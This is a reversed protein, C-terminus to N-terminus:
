DRKFVVRMAWLAMILLLGKVMLADSLGLSNLLGPVLDTRGQSTTSLLQQLLERKGDDDLTSPDDQLGRILERILQASEQRSSQRLSDRNRQVWTKFDRLIDDVSEVTVNPPIPTTPSLGAFDSTLAALGM